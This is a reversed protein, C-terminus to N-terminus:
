YVSLFSVPWDRSMFRGKRTLIVKWYLPVNLLASSGDILKDGKETYYYVGEGRELLRPNAKFDKNPTFPSWHNELSNATVEFM